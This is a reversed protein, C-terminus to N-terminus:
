PGARATRGGLAVTVERAARWGSEIAGHVTGSDGGGDTAEGAFFLVGELPRALEAPAGAGGVAAYSYAGRALPDGLWDHAYSAVLRSVLAEPRARLLRALVEVGGRALADGSQGALLEAAPGGAWGVLVPAIVPYTTWWVPLEPESGGDGDAFLFSLTSLDTEAAATAVDDAEWFRDAFRLTLHVAAGVELLSLARAKADLPPDFRVAGAAGAPAKLVGLPLAVVAARARLTVRRGASRAEVTVSDPSWHVADVTTGVRVDPVDRGLAEIVRDYGDVVRFAREGEIQAEREGNIALARESIREPRAAHFGRVYRLALERRERWEDGACCDDLYDAFSRDPERRAHLGGLVSGLQEDFGGYQRLTLGDGHWREGSVEVVAIADREILRWTSPPRGHVFEAGLEIPVPSHPDRVTRVRGGVRDRAEVVVTRMGARAVEGAAALGAAGAGIVIVDAWEGAGGDGEFEM